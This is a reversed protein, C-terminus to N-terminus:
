RVEFTIVSMSYPFVGVSQITNVQLFYFYESPLNTVTRGQILSNELNSPLTTLFTWVRSTTTTRTRNIEILFQDAVPGNFSSPYYATLIGTIVDMANYIPLTISLSIVKFTNPALTFTAFTGSSTADRRITGSVDDISTLFYTAM